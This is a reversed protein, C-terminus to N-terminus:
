NSAPKQQMQITDFNRVTAVAARLKEISVKTSLFEGLEIPTVYFRFSNCAIRAFAPNEKGMENAPDITLAVIIRDVYTFAAQAPVCYPQGAIVKEAWSVAARAQQVPFTDPLPPLMADRYIALIGLSLKKQDYGLVTAFNTLCSPDTCAIYRAITDDVVSKLTTTPRM